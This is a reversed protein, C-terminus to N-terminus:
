PVSATPPTEDKEPFMDILSLENKTFDPVTVFADILLSPVDDNAPTIDTLLSAFKSPVTVNLFLPVSVAFILPVFPVEDNEPAMCTLLLAVTSPDNKTALLPAM